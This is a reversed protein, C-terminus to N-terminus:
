RKCQNGRDKEVEHHWSGWGRASSGMSVVRCTASVARGKSSRNPEGCLRLLAVAPLSDPDIGWIVREPLHMLTHQHERNGSERPQM